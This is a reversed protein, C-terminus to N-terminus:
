TACPRKNNNNYLISIIIIDTICFTWESFVNRGLYTMRSTFLKLKNTCLYMRPPHTDAQKHVPKHHM